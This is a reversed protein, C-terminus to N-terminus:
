YGLARWRTTGEKSQDKEKQACDKPGGSGGARRFDLPTPDLKSPALSPPASSELVVVPTPTADNRHRGITSAGLSAM